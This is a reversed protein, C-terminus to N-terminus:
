LCHLSLFHHVRAIWYVAREATAYQQAWPPDDYRAAVGFSSLTDFLDNDEATWDHQVLLALRGAAERDRCFYEWCRFTDSRGLLQQESCSAALQDSSRFGGM